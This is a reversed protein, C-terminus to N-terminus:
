KIIRGTCRYLVIKGENLLEIKIKRSGYNNCSARFIGNILQVLEQKNLRQKYEYYYISRSIQLVGCM